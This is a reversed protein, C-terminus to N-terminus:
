GDESFIADYVTTGHSGLVAAPRTGDMLTGFLGAVHFAARSAGGAAAVIIPPPCARVAGEPAVLDCDNAVAWRDLSQDLTQLKADTYKVRVKHSGGLLQSGVAILIITGLILPARARLSWSSLVTLPPVLMGLFIPIFLSRRLLPISNAEE